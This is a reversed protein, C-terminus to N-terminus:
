AATRRGSLRGRRVSRRQRGGGRGGRLFMRTVRVLDLEIRRSMESKPRALCCVSSWDDNPAVSYEAEAVPWRGVPEGPQRAGSSSSSEPLSSAPSQSNTPSPLPLPLPPPLSAPREARRLRLTSTNASPQTMPQARDPPTCGNHTVKKQKATTRKDCASGQGERRMREECRLPSRSSLSRLM